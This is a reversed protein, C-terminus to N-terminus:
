AGETRSRNIRPNGERGEHVALGPNRSPAVCISVAILIVIAVYIGIRTGESTREWWPEYYYPEVDSYRKEIEIVVM